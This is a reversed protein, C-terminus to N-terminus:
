CLSGSLHTSCCGVSNPFNYLFEVHFDAPLQPGKVLGAVIASCIQATEACVPVNTHSSARIYPTRNCARVKIEERLPERSGFTPGGPRFATWQRKVCFGAAVLHFGGPSLSCMRCLGSGLVLPSPPAQPM